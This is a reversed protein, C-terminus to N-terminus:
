GEKGGGLELDLLGLGVLGYVGAVGIEGEALRYELNEGEDGVDTRDPTVYM